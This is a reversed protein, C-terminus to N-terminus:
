NNLIRLTEAILGNEPKDDGDKAKGVDVDEDLDKKVPKKVNFYSEKITELESTFQEVDTFKVNEALSAFKEADTDALGESQVAIIKESENGAVSKKLLINEEIKEDLEARITEVQESLNSVLDYRDEPIEVYHEEFLAKLGVIFNETMETRVGNEIALENDKKWDEVISEMYKELDAEIIDKEKNLKKKYNSEVIAIAEKLHKKVNTKVATEFITSAKMQFDESLEEGSVIAAVDESVDIEISDVDFAEEMDDEDDGKDKESDAKEGDDDDKDKEDDKKKGFDPKEGEEVVGVIKGEEFLNDAETLSLTHDCEPCVHQDEVIDMTAECKDCNFKM